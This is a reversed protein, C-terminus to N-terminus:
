ASNRFLIKWWGSVTVDVGKEIPYAKEPNRSLMSFMKGDGSFLGFQWINYGNFETDALTFNFQIDYPSGVDYTMSDINKIFKNSGDLDSKTRGVPANGDSFKIKTVAKDAYTGQMGILRALVASSDDVIMNHDEVTELEGNRFIELHLIGCISKEIPYYEQAKTKKM